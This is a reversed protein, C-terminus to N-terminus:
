RESITFRGREIRSSWAEIEVLHILHELEHKQVLGSEDTSSLIFATASVSAAGPRSSAVGTIEIRSRDYRELRADSYAGAVASSRAVASTVQRLLLSPEPFLLVAREILLGKSRM